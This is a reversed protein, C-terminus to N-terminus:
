YWYPLRDRCRGYIWATCFAGVGFTGIVWLWSEVPPVSGLLPDRVIRIAHYFPNLEAAFAFEPGLLDKPWFVPTVFLMIQMISSIAPIFDRRRLCLMGVLLGVWVGNALILALAPVALLAPWGPSHLTGIMVAVYLVLHHAFLLLARWVQAFALAPYPFRMSLATDKGAILSNTGENVLSAILTWVVLGVTVYRFFPIPDVRLIVSWVMGIVLVFAALGLTHWFAGLRTRRFRWVVDIWGAHLWVPALRVAQALDHLAIALPSGPTPSVIVQTDM